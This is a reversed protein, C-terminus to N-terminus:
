HRIVPVNRGVTIGGDRGGQHALAADIDAGFEAIQLGLVAPFDLEVPHRSVLQAIGVAPAQVQLVLGLKVTGPGVAAGRQVQAQVPDAVVVIPTVKTEGVAGQRLAQQGVVGGQRPVVAGPGVPHARELPLGQLIHCCRDHRGIVPQRLEAGTVRAVVHCTEVVREAGVVRAKLGVDAAGALGVALAAEPHQLGAVRESGRRPKQRGPHLQVGALVLEFCRQAIAVGGGAAHQWGEAEVAPQHELTVGLQKAAVQALRQLRPGKIDARGVTVLAM